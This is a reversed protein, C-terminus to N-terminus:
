GKSNITASGLAHDLGARYDVYRPSWGTRRCTPENGCRKSATRKLREASVGLIAQAQEDDLVIPESLGTLKALYRYYDLREVPHGDCGLEIRAAADSQAVAVLLDAADDVHILNILADPRGVMPASDRLAREGVVRGPGYLGALRVVHFQEGAALWQQEGEYLLRARPSQPDAPTDADITQDGSHDFVATTSALVARRVPLVGIARLLNNMGDIAVDRPARHQKRGGPPVLYYADIPESGGINRLASLTLPSMVDVILPRVQLPALRRAGQQTMSTAYVVDGREILRKAIRTGLFGCGVILSTM